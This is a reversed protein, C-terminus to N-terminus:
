FFSLPVRRSLLEIFHFHAGQVVSSAVEHVMEGIMVMIAKM